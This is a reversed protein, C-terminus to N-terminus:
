CRTFIANGKAMDVYDLKLYIVDGAQYRPTNNQKINGNGRRNRNINTGPLFGFLGIEPIYVSIGAQLVKSIYGEYFNEEPHDELRESIYRLKLRDCAAFYANDCIDERVTIKEAFREMTGKDRLRCNTDLNWLQQHVALDAYRRIPSTFHCYKVKGLGYHEGPIASYVARPMSRLLANLLIFKKSSRALNEVYAFVDSRHLLVGCPLGCSEAFIEFDALKEQDPAAHIRYVAPIDKAYLETAVASNAALMFEEVIEEAQRQERIQFGNITDAAEDCLIRTEPMEMNLFQEKERREKRWIAAIKALRTISRRTTQDWNDPIEGATLFKQVIDYDLRLRTRIITHARRRSLIEGTQAKVTFFISHAPTDQGAQMSILATLAPPLMPLTRGPLYSTMGRKAAQKDFRSNPTIWAAADAIHVGIEWHDKDITKISLADDFDRADAPDITVTFLKRCDERKIDRPSLQLASVNDEESYPEPLAYERVIADLDGQVTGAKGIRSVISGRLPTKECSDTNRQLRIEVWDGRKAGCRRGSVDIDDTIRINLPRIKRGAIVEGVIKTQGPTLVRIIHGCPGRGQDRSSPPLIGVLVEDGDIANGMEKPPIFIEEPLQGPLVSDENGTMVRSLVTVFGYGSVTARLTGRYRECFRDNRAEIRESKRKKLRELRHKKQKRM